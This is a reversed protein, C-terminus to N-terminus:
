KFGVCMPTQCEVATQLWKEEEYEKKNSNSGKTFLFFNCCNKQLYGFYALDLDLDLKLKLEM